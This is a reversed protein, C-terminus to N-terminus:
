IGLFSLDDLFKKFFKKPNTIIEEFTSLRLLRKIGQKLILRKDRVAMTAKQYLSLLDQASLNDTRILTKNPGYLDYDQELLHGKEQLNERFETAPFPIAIAFDVYDPKLDKILAISQKITQRTEGINGIMFSAQTKIGAQHTLRFARKIESITLGKKMHDLVEQNGSEVGYFIVKFNAQACLSLLRRDVLNEDARFPAKFYIRKNLGLKIIANLIDEVWQRNLNFTDDQFFIERVGYKNHLWEIERIIAEPKRFRVRSGWVSKNCFTCHFPCGRSAMIFMSPRAETPPAGMFREIGGILDLNPLPIYDLDEAYPRSPNIRYRYCIGLIDKLEKDQLLELFTQEGEGYVVIDVDPFHKFIDLKLASPHPGGIVIIIDKNTDKIAKSIVKVSKTQYTNVTIGVVQPRFYKIKEIIGKPDIKDATMHVIMVEYGKHILLTGILILAGSPYMETQRLINEEPNILLVKKLM